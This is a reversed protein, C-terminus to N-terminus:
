RQRYGVLLVADVENWYGLAVQDFHIRVGKIKVDVNTVPIALVRPCDLMKPTSTYVTHYTSAEDRLEVKVIGSATLNEFVEVRTPFVSHEFDVELWEGDDADASAWSLPDDSCGVVNPAGTAQHASWEDPTYESSATASSAWQRCLETLTCPKARFVVNLSIEASVPDVGPDSAVLTLVYVGPEVDEGVKIVVMASATSSRSQIVGVRAAMGAPGGSITFQPVSSFDGNSSLSVFFVSSDGQVVTNSQPSLSIYMFRQPATAEDSDSCAAIAAVSVIWVWRPVVHTGSM